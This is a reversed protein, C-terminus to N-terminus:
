VGAFLNLQADEALMGKKQGALVSHNSCVLPWLDGPKLHTTSRGSNMPLEKGLVEWESAEINSCQSRNRQV